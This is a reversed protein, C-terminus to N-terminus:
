EMVSQGTKIDGFNTELTKLIEVKWENFTQPDSFEPVNPKIVFPMKPERVAKTGNDLDDACYEGELSSLTSQKELLSEELEQKQQLLRRIHQQKLKRKAAKLKDTKNRSEIENMMQIKKHKMDEIEKKLQQVVESEISYEDDSNTDDDDTDYTEGEKKIRDESNNRYTDHVHRQVKRQSM